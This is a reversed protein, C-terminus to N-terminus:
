SPRLGARLMLAGHEQRACRVGDADEGFRRVRAAAGHQPRGVARPRPRSPNRHVRRRRRGRGRRAGAGARIGARRRFFHGQRRAAAGFIVPAGTTRALIPLARMDSVLTNYGFSAGRETVLVNPNGAGTIKAVVNTMDWPALFQGKKVNVVKGTAAAAVLLDTQRCLFAPIQLVDVAQAVEACQAAEHVDTLVPMGLSSRIEAFIPLAQALGIGRAAAVSTRNAKDFSTKYILGVKLRTAIEKLASAVELAHARSELQCPGAIISIPLENGFKVHGATVVPAASINANL